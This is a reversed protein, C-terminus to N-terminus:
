PGHQSLLGSNPQARGVRHADDSLGRLSEFKSEFPPDLITGYAVPAGSRVHSSAWLTKDFRIRTGVPLEGDTFPGSPTDQSIYYNTPLKVWDPFHALRMPQRLRYIAGAKYGSYRTMTVDEGDSHSMPMLIAVAMIAVIV